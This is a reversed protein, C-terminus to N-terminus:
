EVKGPSIIFAAIFFSPLFVSIFSSKYSNAVNAMAVAWAAPRTQIVVTNTLYFNRTTFIRRDNYLLFVLLNKRTRLISVHVFILVDGCIQLGATMYVQNPDATYGHTRQSQNQFSHTHVYGARIHTGGCRGLFEGGVATLFGLFVLLFANDGYGCGIGVMIGDVTFAALGLTDFWFLMKDYVPAMRRPMKAHSYFLIFVVVAVGAAIGVYLPNRFMNPPINGVTIDRIMGGGCATSVALVIIGFLDMRRNVGVLAGSIAFAITGILDFFIVLVETM